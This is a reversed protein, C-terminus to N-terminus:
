INNDYIGGHFVLYILRKDEDTILSSQKQGIYDSITTHKKGEIMKPDCADFVLSFVAGGEPFNSVYIKAGIENALKQCVILGSGSYVRVKGCGTILEDSKRTMFDNIKRLDVGVGYDVVSLAIKNDTKAIRNLIIEVQNNVSHSHIIANLVLNILIMTIKSVDKDCFVDKKINNRFIVNECMSVPLTDHVSTTFEETLKRIDYPKIIKKETVNPNFLSCLNRIRFANICLSSSVKCLTDLAEPMLQQSEIVSTIMSMNLFTNDELTKLIYENGNKFTENVKECNLVKTDDAINSEVFKRFEGHKIMLKESGDDALGVVKDVM